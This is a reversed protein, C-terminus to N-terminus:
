PREWPKRMVVGARKLVRRITEHDAGLETSIRKLSWGAQYHKIALEVQDPTLPQNRLKVGHSALIQLVTGKGLGYIKMLQTTPIGAEYDTALQDLTRPKLRQSM